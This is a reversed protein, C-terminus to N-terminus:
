VKETPTFWPFTLLKFLLCFGKICLVKTLLRKGSVKTGICFSATATSCRRHRVLVPFAAGNRGSGAWHSPKRRFHSMFTDGRKCPKHYFWPTGKFWIIKYRWHSKILTEKGITLEESLGKTVLPFSIEWLGWM